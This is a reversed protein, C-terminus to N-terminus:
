RPKPGRVYDKYSQRATWAMRKTTQDARRWTWTGEMSKGSRRGEWVVKGQDPHLLTATWAVAGEGSKTATYGAASFGKDDFQISRFVGERFSVRDVRWFLIKQVWSNQRVKWFTGDMGESEAAGAVGAWGALLVALTLRKM